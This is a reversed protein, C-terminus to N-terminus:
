VRRRMQTLHVHTCTLFFVHSLYDVIHKSSKAHPARAASNAPIALVAVPLAHLSHLVSPWEPSTQTYISPCLHLKGFQWKRSEPRSFYCFTRPCQRCFSCSGKWLKKINGNDQTVNRSTVRFRHNTQVQSQQNESIKEHYSCQKYFVVLAWFNKTYERLKTYKIYKMKGNGQPVGLCYFINIQSFSCFGSNSGSGHFFLAGSGSGLCVWSFWSSRLKFRLWTWSFIEPIPAPAADNKRRSRLGTWLWVSISM